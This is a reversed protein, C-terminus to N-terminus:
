KAVYVVVVGEGWIKTAAASQADWCQQERM